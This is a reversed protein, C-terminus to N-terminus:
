AGALEVTATSRALIESDHSVVVVAAGHEMEAQLLAVVMNRNEADLGATPEDMVVVSAGMALARAIALRQRQGGSLEDVLRGACADLGTAGLWHRCRNRIEPRPLAEAQLPLAVTESATLFSVLAEDQAVLAPRTGPSGFEVTGRDPALFGALVRALTSKGTGSPGTIVTLSGAEAELDVGDLLARGGVDVGIGVARLAPKRV